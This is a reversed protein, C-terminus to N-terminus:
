YSQLPELYETDHLYRWRSRDPFGVPGHGPCAVAPSELRRRTLYYRNPGALHVVLALRGTRNDRCRIVSSVHRDCVKCRQKKRSMETFRARFQKRTMAQGDGLRRGLDRFPRAVADAVSKRAAALLDTRPMFRVPVTRAPVRGPRPERPAGGREDRGGRAQRRARALADLDIRKRIQNV